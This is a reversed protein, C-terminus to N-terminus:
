RATRNLEDLMNNATTIVRTAASYAQQTIIMNSFETAIDVTSAELAGAVIKGAPGSGATNILGNGSEASEAYVNGSKGFLGNPNPFTVIPVKFIPSSEGNDFLATVLGDEGITVANFTGFRVGNQNIFYTTFTSAFQTMGDAKGATGFNLAISSDAAGNTFSVVANAINPTALTGDSNFTLESSTNALQQVTFATTQNVVAKSAGDLVNSANVAIAGTGDELINLTGATGTFRGNGIATVLATVVDSTNTATSIDVPTNGGGVSANTDFEYTTGAIVITSGDAPIGTFEVQGASHVVQGSANELRVLSAGPPVAATVNWANQAAKTFSFGLNHSVGLSDFFQTTLANSSGVAATAPLNAGMDIKTTPTSSGSIGSVNIASLSSLVSPNSVTPVGNADTPFGMLFFGGTNRLFGKSDATFSGARTFLFDDGLGPVAATNVAFFGGGVIAADTQSSSSQLLGQRDIQQLPKTQVGGPTYSTTTASQTVLTSFRASTGKYGVTNVNSINDSIIGLAESQATLGSVGSFLAGFISM